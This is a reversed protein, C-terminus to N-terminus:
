LRDRRTLVGLRSIGQDEHVLGEFQSLWSELIEVEGARHTDDLVVTAQDSLKEWLVPVAPFRARPGTAQPPGDIILFDIEGLDALAQSSYWQFTEGGLELSELPAVRLDAVDELGHRRLGDRTREAYRELHDLSVLEIGLERCLHAIWITSTGSGLELIRRPHKSRILHLLHLLGPADLAFGGTPPMPARSEVGGQAFLQMLSEIQLVVDRSERTSQSGLKKAADEMSLRSVETGALIRREAEEMRVRLARVRDVYGAAKEIHAENRTNTAKVETRMAALKEEIKAQRADVKSIERGLKEETRKTAGSSRRLERLVANQVRLVVVGLAGLTLLIAMSSIQLGTDASGGALLVAAVAVALVALVTTAQNRSMGLLSNEM